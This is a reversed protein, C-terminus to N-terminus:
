VKTELTNKLIFMVTNCWDTVIVIVTVSWVCVVHVM